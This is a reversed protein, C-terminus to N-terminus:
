PLNREPDSGQICARHMKYNITYKRKTHGSFPVICENITKLYLKLVYLERLLITDIYDWQQRGIHVQQVVVEM